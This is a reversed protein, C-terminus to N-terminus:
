AVVSSGRLLQGSWERLDRDLQEPSPPLGPLRQSHQYRMGDLVIALHRRWQGPDRQGTIAMTRAVGLLVLTLDAITLDARALRAQQARSLLDSM